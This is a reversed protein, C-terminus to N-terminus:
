SQLGLVLMSGLIYRTNQLHMCFSCIFSYHQVTLNQKLVNSYIFNNCFFIRVEWKWDSMYFPQFAHSGEEICSFLQVFQFDLVRRLDMLSRCDCPLGTHYVSSSVFSYFSYCSVLLLVWPQFRTPISLSYNVLHQLSLESQCSFYFSLAAWDPTRPSACM